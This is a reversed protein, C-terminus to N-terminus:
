KCDSIDDIGDTLFIVSTINDIWYRAIGAITMYFIYASLLQM